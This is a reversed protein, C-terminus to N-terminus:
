DKSFRADARLPEKGVSPADVWGARVGPYADYDPVYPKIDLLPTGDLIDIEGVQLTTGHVGLLHVASMGIPNIRSPVRTAFLGHERTDRYPLVSLKAACARDFWYILWIREFGGLDVLGQAYSPFIEVTGQAGEASYPQIPTGLQQQFPSHIVGIPALLLRPGDNAIAHNPEDIM